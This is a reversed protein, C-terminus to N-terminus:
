SRVVISFRDLYLVTMWVESEWVVEPINTFSTAHPKIYYIEKMLKAKEDCVEISIELYNDVMRSIIDKVKM